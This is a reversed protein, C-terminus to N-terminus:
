ARRRIAHVRQQGVGVALMRAIAQKLSIEAPIIGALKMEPEGGDADRRTEHSANTIPLERGYAKLMHQLM